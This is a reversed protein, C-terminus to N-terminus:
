VGGCRLHVDLTTVSRLNVPEGGVIHSRPAVAANGYAEVELETVVRLTRRVQLRPRETRTLRVAVVAFVYVGAHGVQPLAVVGLAIEGKAPDLLGRM